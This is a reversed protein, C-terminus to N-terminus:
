SIKLFNMGYIRFFAYVASKASLEAGESGDPVIQTMFSYFDWLCVPFLRGKVFGYTHSATYAHFVTRFVTKFDFSRFKVSIDICDGSKCPRLIAYIASYAGIYTRNVCYAELPPLM